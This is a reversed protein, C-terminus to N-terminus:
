QLHLRIYFIGSVDLVIDEMLLQVAKRESVSEMKQQRERQRQEVTASFVCDFMCELLTIVLEVDMYYKTSLFGFKSIFM